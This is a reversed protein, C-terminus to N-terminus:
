EHFMKCILNKTSMIDEKTSFFVREKDKIGSFTRFLRSLHEQKSSYLIGKTSNSSAHSEWIFLISPLVVLKERFLRIGLPLDKEQLQFKELQNKKLSVIPFPVKFPYEMSRVFVEFLNKEKSSFGQLITEKIDKFDAVYEKLFCLAKLLNEQVEKEKLSLFISLFLSKALYRDFIGKPFQRILKFVLFGLPYEEILNIKGFERNNLNNDLNIIPANFFIKFNKEYFDGLSELSSVGVTIVLDIDQSTEKPIYISIEESKPLKGKTLLCLEMTDNNKKYYIEPFFDPNKFVLIFNKLEKLPFSFFHKDALFNEPYLKVAKGIKKLTYFLSSTALIVDLSDRAPNACILISRNKEILKKIEPFEEM